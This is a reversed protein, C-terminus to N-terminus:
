NTAQPGQLPDGTFEPRYDKRFPHGVWDEPLLIRMSAPDAMMPHGEFAIGFLDFCEREHWNMGPWIGTVSPVWPAHSSTEVSVTVSRNLAPSWLRYWLVITEGLDTACLDAPYACMLGPDDRLVACIARLCGPEVRLAPTADDVVEAGAARLAALADASIEAGM